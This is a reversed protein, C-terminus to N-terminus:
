LWLPMKFPSLNSRVIRIDKLDEIVAYNKSIADYM